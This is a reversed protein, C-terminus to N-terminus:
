FINSNLLLNTIDGDANYAPMSFSESFPGFERTNMAALQFSYSVDPNLGGIVYSTAVNSNIMVDNSLVQGPNAANMIRVLYGDVNMTDAM